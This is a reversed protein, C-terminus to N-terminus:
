ARARRLSGLGLAALSLLSVAAGAWEIAGPRHELEVASTGTPAMVELLGLADRRTPIRAGGARAVWLPSYAIALGAWGSTGPPV